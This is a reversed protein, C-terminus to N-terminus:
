RGALGPLQVIAARRIQARHVRRRARRPAFRGVSSSKTNAGCSTAPRPARPVRRLPSARRERHMSRRSIPIELEIADVVPQNVSLDDDAPSLREVDAEDHEDVVLDRRAVPLLLEIAHAHRRLHVDVKARRRSARNAIMRAIDRSGRGPMRSVPSMAVIRRRTSPTFAIPLTFTPPM